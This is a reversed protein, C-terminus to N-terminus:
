NGQPRQYRRAEAALADSGTVVNLSAYLTVAKEREETTVNTSDLMVLKRLRSLVFHSCLKPDKAVM